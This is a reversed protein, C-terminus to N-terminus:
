PLQELDSLSFSRCSAVGPRHSHREACGNGRRLGQGSVLLLCCLLSPVIPLDPFSLLATKAGLGLGLPRQRELEWWHLIKLTQERVALGLSVKVEKKCSFPHPCSTSAGRITQFQALQEREPGATTQGALKHQPLGRTQGPM